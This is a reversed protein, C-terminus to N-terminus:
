AGVGGVPERRRLREAEARASDRVARGRAPKQPRQPNGPGGRVVRVGEDGGQGAAVVRRDALAAAQQGAALALSDAQSAGEQPVGPSAKRAM